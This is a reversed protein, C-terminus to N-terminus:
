KVLKTEPLNLLEANLLKPVTSENWKKNRVVQLDGSGPM